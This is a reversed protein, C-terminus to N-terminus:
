VNMSTLEATLQVNALVPADRRLSMRHVDEHNPPPLAQTERGRPGGVITEYLSAMYPKRGYGTPLLWMQGPGSLFFGPPLRVPQLWERVAANVEVDFSNLEFLRHGKYQEYDCVAEFHLIALICIQAM